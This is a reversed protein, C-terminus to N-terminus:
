VPILSIEVRPIRAGHALAWATQDRIRDVVAAPLEFKKPDEVIGLWVPQSEILVTVAAM